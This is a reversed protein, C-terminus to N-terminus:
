KCSRRLPGYAQIGEHYRRLPDLIQGPGGIANAPPPLNLALRRPRPDPGPAAASSAFKFRCESRGRGRGRSAPAPVVLLLGACVPGLKFGSDDIGVPPWEPIMAVPSPLRVKLLANVTFRSLSQWRGGRSPGPSSMETRGTAPGNKIKFAPYGCSNPFLM